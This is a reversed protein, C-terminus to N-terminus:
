ITELESIKFNGTELLLKATQVNQCLTMQTNTEIYQKKNEDYNVIKQIKM